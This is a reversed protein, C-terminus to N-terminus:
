GDQSSDFEIFIQSSSLTGAALVYADATFESQGSGNMSEAVIGTIKGGDDYKFHSVYMQPRYDLNPYRMCERLTISPTYLAEPPCGWLCRGCYTCGKRDGQDRSHTTVRSRGMYAGYVENLDKKHRNYAAILRASGDDLDLPGMLNEHMPYFRTMDDEVGILGIRRSVEGYHPGIDRYEFPYDRLEEENLAYAGGTWAEALGGAAFSVLPEFGSAEYGFGSPHSFVHTKSPPFGYYKTYYDEESGPYVVAEYHSGLFYQVPDPLKEKLDNYTDAPNAFPPRQWGVDLMTVDYGKKLVSLAFHVGSAGSGVVIIKGMNGGSGGGAKIETIHGGESTHAAPM